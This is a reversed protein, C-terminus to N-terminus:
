IKQKTKPREYKCCGPLNDYVEDTAKHMDTDHEVKAIAM